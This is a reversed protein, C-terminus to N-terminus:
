AEPGSSGLLRRAAVAVLVLVLAAVLFVPLLVGVGGTSSGSLV